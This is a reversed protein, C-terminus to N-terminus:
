KARRRRLKKARTEAPTEGFRERYQASFRGLHEFGCAYAVQTVALDPSGLLLGSARTLRRTRLFVGPSCGRHKLFGTQLARVSVGSMSALETMRIPRALNAELYEAARRVHEPEAARAAFHLVATHNHPQALLLQLLLAGSLRAAV